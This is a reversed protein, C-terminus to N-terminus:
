NIPEMILLTIYKEIIDKRREKTSNNLTLQKFVYTNTIREFLIEKISDDDINRYNKWLLEFLKFMERSTEDVYYPYMNEVLHNLRSIAQKLFVDLSASESEKLM